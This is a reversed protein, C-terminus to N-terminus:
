NVRYSARGTGVLSNSSVGNITIVVPGKRNLNTYKVKVQAKGDFYVESKWFITSRSRYAPDIEIDAKTPNYFEKTPRYISIPLLMKDKKHQLKWDTRIKNLNPDSSRTNVFIIGGAAQRGYRAFGQNGMLITLSTLDGAPLSRVQSWGDEYIAMGDLVILAPVAGGFFSRTPRLIIYKDNLVFPFILRRVADTVSFSTWLLEYDLSKVETYSYEEEFKDHYVKKNGQRGKITVEPIEIITDGPLKNYNFPSVTYTDPPITQKPTFLKNDKFYKENYPISLMAGQVRNKNESNPLMTVSRTIKPLSDLPMSILGENNSILHMISPGELSILDLRRDAMHAKSAYLIKMRLLDYDILEKSISAEGTFEWNYKSWGYVMLLLDREENTLNELGKLLVKPPLNSLFYPNYNFTHEIGPTFIEACHGSISDAVSISFIGEVPKGLGDTVSVELETEQLPSYVNKGTKINFRLHKGANIYILREAVPKIEKNFVTIQAVGAPLQDTEITIKQKKNFAFKRCFIQTLNMTGSVTVTDGSYVDSQIEVSFSNNDVPKISLSIASSVPEPLPWIKEKGASKILEVYMGPQPACFFLGPGYIGSKITDVITGKSNKLLGEIYVPQGGTNTANFGIRQEFGTVLNGGEPLFRLEVYQNEEPGDVKVPDINRTGVYLDLQFANLPNFNQMMGTFSTFHYIGPGATAPITMWGSSTSNDIKYRSSDILVKKDNFLLAYLSVSKSEFMGTIINRVYAQFFITDGPRYRNRDLHVFVQDSSESNQLSLLYKEVPTKVLEPESKDTSNGQPLFDYPLLDAVRENAMEGGWIISYPNDYYGNNYINLSDSFIITSLYKPSTFGTLGTFLEPHKDTYDILLPNRYFITRYNSNGSLSIESAEVPKNIIFDSSGPEITFDFLRYNEGNVSNSFIARFLHMRSGYYASLRNHSWMKNSRSSGKLPQFYYNGSFRLIGTEPNYKFESLDYLITYGLARNEIRLPKVSFGTLTKGQPDEYLHMEESNIIKCYQSNSTEGLFLRTFLAYNKFRNKEKSSVLVEGLHILNVNLKINITQKEGNVNIFQSVPKYGVSSIIMEYVGNHPVTLLFTGKSDSYTGITTKALYVSATTLPNNLSDTVVGTINTQAILKCSLLLFLSIWTTRLKM